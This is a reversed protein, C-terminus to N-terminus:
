IRKVGPRGVLSKASDSPKSNEKQEVWGNEEFYERRLEAAKDEAERRIEPGLRNLYEDIKDPNLGLDAFLDNLRQFQAKAENITREAQAKREAVENKWNSLDAM